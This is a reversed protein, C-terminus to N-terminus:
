MSFFRFHGNSLVLSKFDLLSGFFLNDVGEGSLFPVVDLCRGGEVCSVNSLGSDVFGCSGFNGRIRQLSSNQFDVQCIKLLFFVLRVSLDLQNDFFDLSAFAECVEVSHIQGGILESREDSFPLSENFSENINFGGVSVEESQESNSESASSLVLQLSSRIGLSSLDLLDSSFHHVDHGFFGGSRFELIENLLEDGFGDSFLNFSFAL